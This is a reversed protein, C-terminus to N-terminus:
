PMEDKLWANYPVRFQTHFIEAAAANHDLEARSDIRCTQRIIEAAELANRPQPFYNKKDRLWAQFNLDVCFQGALKALVGGKVSDITDQQASRLAADPSLRAIAIPTGPTGFLAFATQAFRPEIDISVRFTGDALTKITTTTGQVAGPSQDESM